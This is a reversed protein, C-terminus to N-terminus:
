RAAGTQGTRAPAAQSAALTWHEEARRMMHPVDDALLYGGQVLADTQRRFATLYAEKSPYREEISRRPDRRAERGARTPAFPIASGMLNVLFATGGTAAARFNWGTYTAVPVTVEPSRIGALENGDADVQPVLFPLRARGQRAGVITRPPTVGALAPFAVRDAAVLTGDSLRPYQSAPPATGTAVWATMGALLARLPWWYQVPNHPQQGSTLRPPFDGPSHQTGTLFYVRVNDPLRLDKTGDVSTHVLAASRGGGWYEVASNTYFVKPQHRRARDNDLLGDTRGGIPDRQAADSFPFGTATYMSLANPTAAPENLSLRGAGAIHAMVGDLVQRDREDANFGQYMFTRLFRGSQSSGWAITHRASALADPRYKVWSATDRFAALGLGVVPLNEARYAIEYTRGPEFGAAMGVVNGGRLTWRERPITQRAGFPGDRVTLTTEASAADAPVYGALDAVTEETSRAAPTFEARVLASTGPASPVQIGLLGNQRRVDFQWGVWVLTYGRRTLFGDGLDADSSPDLGAPARSFGSLLGKRGRNSVEILAVGNALARDVPRLIFLDASFEILGDGNKPAKDLNVIVKNLPHSARVEGYAKGILKEYAGTIPFEYGNAFHERKEIVIERIM